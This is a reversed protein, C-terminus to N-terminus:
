GNVVRYWVEERKQKNSQKAIKLAAAYKWMDSSHKYVQQESFFVM